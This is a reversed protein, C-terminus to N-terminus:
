TKCIATPDADFGLAVEIVASGTVIFAGGTLEAGIALTHEIAWATL